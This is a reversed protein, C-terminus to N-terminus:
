VVFVYMVSCCFIIYFILYNQGVVVIIYCLLIYIDGIKM